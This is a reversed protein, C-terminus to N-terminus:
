SEEDNAIDGYLMTEMKPVASHVGKRTEDKWANANALFKPTQRTM